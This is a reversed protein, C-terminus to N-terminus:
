QLLHPIVVLGSLAIEIKEFDHAGIVLPSDSPPLTEGRAQESAGEAIACSNRLSMEGPPGHAVPGTPPGPAPGNLPAASQGGPLHM